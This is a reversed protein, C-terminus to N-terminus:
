FLIPHPNMKNGRHTNLFHDSIYKLTKQTDIFPFKAVLNETAKREVKNGTKVNWDNLNFGGNRPRHFQLFNLKHAIQQPCQTM